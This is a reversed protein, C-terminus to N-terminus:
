AAVIEPTANARYLARTLVFALAFTTVAVLLISINQMVAPDSALLAQYARVFPARGADGREIGIGVGYFFNAAWPFSFGVLLVISAVSPRFAALIGPVIILFYEPNIHFFSLYVWLMMAVIVQVQESATIPKGRLRVILLPVMSLGFAIIASIKRAQGDSISAVQHILGWINVSMQYPIVFEEFAEIAADARGQLLAQLGYVAAIPAVGAFVDKLWSKWTRGSAVGLLGVLPVLFYIKAAVVSAGCLFVALSTRSKLLAVTIAAFMLLSLMEDQCMITTTVWCVPAAIYTAALLHRGRATAARAIIWWVLPWALLEFACLTARMSYFPPLLWSLPTHLSWISLPFLPPFVEHMTSRGFLLQFPDAAYVRQMTVDEAFEQGGTFWHIAILQLLRVLLLICAYIAGQRLIERTTRSLTASFAMMKSQPTFANAAGSRFRKLVALRPPRM